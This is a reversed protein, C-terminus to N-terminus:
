GGFVKRNVLTSDGSLQPIQTFESKLTQVAQNHAEKFTINPNSKIAKTIAWTFAGQYKNGINADASTQDDKCGSILIHNQSASKDQKAGIIKVPLKRDVSRSKIDFPPELYRPTHREKTKNGPNNLGRTMTGSHCSDCFMTLYVGKPVKKFLEALDDDTLPNNWDLDTPCLIEDLSDNLEDGNRDRIQSGHGSYHFFLEDGAVPDKVLWNLRELIGEKTARFDTLVRINDAEFGFQNVLLNRMNEVDNVCGQLDANLDPAYKNIGVLVAKKIPKRNTPAPVVVDDDDDKKFKDLFKKICKCMEDEGFKHIKDRTEKAENDWLKLLESRPINYKKFEKWALKTWKYRYYHNLYTGKEWKAM